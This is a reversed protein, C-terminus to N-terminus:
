YWDIFLELTTCVWRTITFNSKQLVVFLICILNFTCTQTYSSGYDVSTILLLYQALSTNDSNLFLFLWYQLITCVIPKLVAVISTLKM